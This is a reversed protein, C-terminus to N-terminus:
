ENTVYGPKHGRPTYKKIPTASPNGHPIPQSNHGLSGKHKGRLAGFVGQPAGSLTAFVAHFIGFLVGLGGPPNQLTSGLGM